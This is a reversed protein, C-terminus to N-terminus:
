AEFDTFRIKNERILGEFHPAHSHLDLQFENDPVVGEVNSDEGHFLNFKRTNENRADSVGANRLRFKGKATPINRTKRGDPRNWGSPLDELIELQPYKQPNTYQKKVGRAEGLLEGFRELRAQTRIEQDSRQLLPSDPAVAEISIDPNAEVLRQQRERPTETRGPTSVRIPATGGGYAPDNGRRVEVPLPQPKAGGIGRAQEEPTPVFFPSLVPKQDELERTLREVDQLAVRRARGVTDLFEKSKEQRRFQETAEALQADARKFQKRAVVLEEALRKVESETKQEVIEPEPTLGGEPEEGELILQLEGTEPDRPPTSTPTSPFPPITQQTKPIRTGLTKKKKRQDRRQGEALTHPRGEGDAGDGSREGLDLSPPQQALSSPTLEPTPPAPPLTEAIARQTTLEEGTLVKGQTPPPTPPPRPKPKDQPIEPVQQALRSQQAVYDALSGGTRGTPPRHAPPRSSVEPEVAQNLPNDAPSVPLEVFRPSEVEPTPTAQQQRRTERILSSAIGAYVKDRTAQQQAPDGLGTLNQNLTKLEQLVERNDSQGGVKQLGLLREQFEGQRREREDQSAIFRDALQFMSRNFRATDQLRAESLRLNDRRALEQLRLQTTAQQEAKTQRDTELKLQKKKLEREVEAEDRARNRLAQQHIRFFDSVVQEQPIRRPRQGRFTRLGELGSRVQGQKFIEEARRERSFMGKIGRKGRKRRPMKKVKGAERFLGSPYYPFPPNPLPRNLSM